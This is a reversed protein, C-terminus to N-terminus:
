VTSTSHVISFGQRAMINVLTLVANRDKQKGGENLHDYPILDPHLMLRDDRSAGFRWGREIRDAMWRRHEVKAMLEIDAASPTASKIGQNAVIQYGAAAFLIPAHEFSSRNANRLNEPLADWAEMAASSSVGLQKAAALYHAHLAIAMEDGKRDLIRDITEARVLGGIAVLQTLDRDGVQMHAFSSLLRDETTQHVLTPATETGLANGPRRLALTTAIADTDDRLVVALQVPPYIKRWPECVESVPVAADRDRPLVVIQLILDLEPKARRWRELAETEPEDVAFTVVPRADPHDQAAIIIQWVTPRWDGDLGVVLVHSALDKDTKLFAPAFRALELRVCERTPSLRHYRVGHRRSLKDLAADLEVALEEREIKIALILPPLGEPRADLAPLAVMAINLNAVDDDGLLFLAAAGSLHLSRITAAKLPNGDVVTLGISELSERQHSTIKPIVVVVQRGRAALASLAHDTMGLSGNELSGCIVIHDAIRPLLALRAPRTVSAILIQFSALVAVLPVALRAIQLIVSPSGRLDPFQLTILQATRFVNDLVGWYNAPPKEIMWGWFGLSLAIAGAFVQIKARHQNIFNAMQGARVTLLLIFRNFASATLYERM